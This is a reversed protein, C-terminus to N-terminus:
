LQEEIVNGLRELLVDAHELPAERFFLAAHAYMHTEDTAQAPAILRSQGDVAEFDKAVRQGRVPELVDGFAKPAATAQTLHPAHVFVFEFRQKAARARSIPPCEWYYADFPAM